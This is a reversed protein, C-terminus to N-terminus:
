YILFISCDTHANRSINLSSFPRHSHLFSFTTPMYSPLKELVQDAVQFERTNQKKFPGLRIGSEWKQIVKMYFSKLINHYM